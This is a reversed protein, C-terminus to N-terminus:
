VDELPPKFLSLFWTFYENGFQLHYGTTLKLTQQIITLAMDANLACGVTVRGLGLFHKVSWILNEICISVQISTVYTLLWEKKQQFIFKSAM